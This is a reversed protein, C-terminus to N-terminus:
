DAPQNLWSFDTLGTWTKKLLGDHDRSPTVQVKGWEGKVAYSSGFFFGDQDKGTLTHGILSSVKGMITGAIPIADASKPAVMINYNVTQRVLDTDGTLTIKAPIADVILNTTRAKGDALEFQGKISNFSLGEEYIDSFDLQLRKIWQAVALVGLVRGLGPEVSLLRGDKLELDLQGQLNAIAFQHPAGQWSVKFDATGSNKTFDNSINFQKFLEDARLMELRGQARTISQSGNVQWDGTISLKQKDGNLSVNNFKLGNATRETALNLQGLEITQWRTKRSNLSLLPLNEPSLLPTISQGAKPNNLQKLLSLDFEDMDLAIRNTSKLDFPITLNGKAFASNLVGQWQKGQPNLRLDFLGLPTKNWLSTNSRVNIENIVSRTNAQQNDASLQLGRMAYALWDQLALQERNLEVTIGTDPIKNIQGNGVLIHGAQLQRQKTDLKLSAKLKNDYNIQLPLLVDSWSFDLTLLRQQDSTKALDDPLDLRIGALMSQINLSSPKNAYPLQLQLKYDSEGQAVADMPLKFQAQLEKISARGSANITTKQDDSSIGIQIANALARANIREASIGKETFKLVGNLNDVALDVASITLNANNLQAAGDVKLAIGELMPLTLKLHTNTNGQPNIAASITPLSLNLPTKQLFTFVDPIAANLQGDVLVVEGKYLSPISVDAQQIAVKESNGQTLQVQLTDGIFAVEGALDKLHPWQPNYLLEVQQAHFLVQFVGDGKTFPFDKPHGYFLFDGKPITGSIFAYDLWDLQMKNMIGVPYYNPAKSMDKATFATQVDMFLPQENKPIVIQLRTKSKIDPTDLALLASSLTWDDANQQWNFKGKLQKVSFPNRFLSPYDIQANDTDINISGQQDNGLVSGTLNNVGLWLPTPSSTLHSFKSSITLQQTDLNSSLNLEDLQGSVQAQNLLKLHQESLPAFFGALSAFEHVDIHPSSLSINHLTDSGQANITFATSPYKKAATSLAFQEVNLQWLDNQKNWFFLTSFQPSNFDPKHQRTFLLNRGQVEGTLSALQSNQWNAWVKIDSVGSKVGLTLPLDVTVWAPLNIAKGEIFGNGQIGAPTFINGNIDLAAKLFEGQHKDLNIVINFRHHDDNNRILINVDDFVLPKGRRLEDQWIVTSELVQYQRGQLLWLPQGGSGAELGVIAISGDAQKKVTIKVGVLTVTSSSLLDRSLMLHILNIGLRLEQLHIAPKSDPSLIAIDHLTLQPKFHHFRTTLQGITIPANMQKSIEAALEPKYDDIVSLLIRAALLLVAASM